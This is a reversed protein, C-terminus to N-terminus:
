LSWGWGNLMLVWQRGRWTSRSAVVLVALFPLWHSLTGAASQAATSGIQRGLTSGIGQFIAPLIKNTITSLSHIFYHSTPDNDAFGAIRAGPQFPLYFIVILGAIIGGASAAQYFGRRSNQTGTALLWLYGPVFLLAALKICVAVAFLASAGRWRGALHLWIALLVATLMLVDNHASLGFEILLLPNWAYIITAALRAKNGIPSRATVEDNGEQGSGRPQSTMFGTIKWVLYINLLHAGDALLRHALVSVTLQDPSLAAIRDIGGALLLWVPGYACPVDRWYIYQLWNGSDRAVFESPVHIYPNSAFSDFIRGYWAYAFIDNSFIERSFLLLGLMAATIGIIFRISTAKGAAQTPSRLARVVAIYCWFLWFLILLYAVAAWVSWKDDTAQVAQFPALKDLWGFPLLLGSLLSPIQWLHGTQLLLLLLLLGALLLFAFLPLLPIPGASWVMHSGDPSGTRTQDSAGGVKDPDAQQPNM